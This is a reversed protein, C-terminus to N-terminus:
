LSYGDDTPGATLKPRHRWNEVARAITFRLRPDMFGAEIARATANRMVDLRWKLHKSLLDFEGSMDSALLGPLGSAPTVFVGGEHFRSIPHQAHSRARGCRVELSPAMVVPLRHARLQLLLDDNRLAGLGHLVRRAGADVAEQIARHGGTLGAQVILRLELAAARKIAAEYPALPASEDGMLAVAVVHPCEDDTVTEIAAELAGPAEGRQAELVLGWSLFAEEQEERADELGADLERLAETLAVAGTEIGVHIEAHVVNGKILKQGIHRGALRYHGPRRLLTAAWAVAREMGVPDDFALTLSLAELDAGERLDAEAALLSLFDVDLAGPLRCFLDVKPLTDIVSM